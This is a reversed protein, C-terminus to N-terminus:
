ETIQWTDTGQPVFNEPLLIKVETLELCEGQKTRIPPRKKDRARLILTKGDDSYESDIAYRGQKTFFELVHEGANELEVATEVLVTSGAWFDVEYEGVLDLQVAKAAKLPFTEHMSNRVVVQATLATSACLM